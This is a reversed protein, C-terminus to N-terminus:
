PQEYLKFFQSSFVLNLIFEVEGQESLSISALDIVDILEEKKFIQIQQDIVDFNKARGFLQAQLESPSLSLFYFYVDPHSKNELLQFFRSVTTHNDLIISFDNIKKQLALTDKELAVLEPTKQKELEEKLATIQNQSQNILFICLFFGGISLVFLVLSVYFLINKQPNTQKEKPIIEVM